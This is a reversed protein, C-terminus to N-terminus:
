YYISFKDCKLVRKFARLYHSENLNIDHSVYALSEYSQMAAPHTKVNSRVITRDHM